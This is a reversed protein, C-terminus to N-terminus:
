EVTWSVNSIVEFINEFGNGENLWVVDPSVVIFDDRGITCVHQMAASIPEGCQWAKAMEGCMSVGFRNIYALSAMAHEASMTADFSFAERQTASIRCAM